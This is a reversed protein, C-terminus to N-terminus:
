VRKCDGDEAANLSARWRDMTRDRLAYFIAFLWDRKTASRVDKGVQYVLRNSISRRLADVTNTPQDFQFPQVSSM